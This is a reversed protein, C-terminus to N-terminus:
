EGFSFQASEVAVMMMMITMKMMTMMVALAFERIPYQTREASHLSSPEAQEGVGSAELWGANVHEDDDDDDDIADDDDEDEDGDEDDNDADYDGSQCHSCDNTPNGDWGDWLHGSCGARGNKLKTLLEKRLWAGSYTM